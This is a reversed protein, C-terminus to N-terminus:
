LDWILLESLRSLLSAPCQPSVTLSSPPMTNTSPSSPQLQSVGAIANTTSASGYQSSHAPTKASSHELTDIDNSLHQWVHLPNALDETERNM